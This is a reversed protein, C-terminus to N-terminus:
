SLTAADGVLSACHALLSVVSCSSSIRPSVSRPTLSTRLPRCRRCPSRRRCRRSPGAAVAVPHVGAVRVARVAIGVAAVRLRLASARQSRDRRLPRKKPSYQSRL